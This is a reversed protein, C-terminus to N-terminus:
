QQWGQGTAGGGTEQTGTIIEEFIAQPQLGPTLGSVPENNNYDTKPELYYQRSNNPSM